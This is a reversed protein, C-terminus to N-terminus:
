SDLVSSYNKWEVEIKLFKTCHIQFKNTFCLLDSLYQIVLSANCPDSSNKMDALM